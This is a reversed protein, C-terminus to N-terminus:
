LGGRGIPSLRLRQVRQYHSPVVRGLLAVVFSAKQTADGADYADFLDAMPCQSNELIARVTHEAQALPSNHSNQGDFTRM